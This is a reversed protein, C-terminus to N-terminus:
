TDPTLLFERIFSLAKRRMRESYQEILRLDPEIQHRLWTRQRKAFRRTARKAAEKAVELAVDGKLYSALERVGVAKMVPLTADLGLALLAEVEAVAGRALMREFRRDLVAGLSQADPEITIIGFRAALPAQPPSLRHWERLPKGTALLVEMARVLRQRDNPLIADEGSATDMARLRARFADEGLRDLCQGAQDRIAPPIEPLASLGGTLAKIYLGTGGVVIPLRHAAWTEAVAGTALALWRGVSCVQRAPLVGYLRHPVHREDEPSPRATLLRLEAYVQMSDANIITGGFREAAAM